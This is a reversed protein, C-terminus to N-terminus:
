TPQQNVISMLVKCRRHLVEAQLHMKGALILTLLQTKTSYRVSREALQFVKDTRVLLVKRVKHVMTVLLVELVPRVM